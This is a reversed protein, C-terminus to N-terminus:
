IAGAREVTVGGHAPADDEYLEGCFKCIKSNLVTREKREFM